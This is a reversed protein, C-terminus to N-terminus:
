RRRRSRAHEVIATRLQGLAGELMAGYATFPLTLDLTHSPSRDARLHHDALRGVLLGLLIAMSPSWPSARWRDAWASAGDADVNMAAAGAIAPRDHRRRRAAAPRWSCASRTRTPRGATSSRWSGAATCSARDPRSLELVEDLEASVLLVATGADRKAVIQRHIFEIASTSAARRSTSRHAAEAARSFERAVVVKQQNGGSLTGAPVDGSPTRIDFEAILEAPRRASRGARQAPGRLALVARRPLETLVLNDEIPFSLVLGFRHRDAPVYAVGRGSMDRPSHDTVDHGAISSGGRRRSACGPSRRSSSTRGTARSAPSASSRAPASRSASARSSPEHRPRRRGVPGRGPPGGRGPHPSAADVM